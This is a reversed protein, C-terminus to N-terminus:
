SDNRTGNALPWNVAFGNTYRLDIQRPAETREFMLGSWSAVMRQLRQEAADRGLQVQTGNSLTLSWAGRQDLVLRQIDLGIPLLADNFGVWRALVDDLRADPGELWPLGQLQDAGAVEFAAGDTSILRGRNWHAVPRYEHVMVTVTDPWQKRVDVGSVWAINAAAQHLASLDVTFYSSRIQPAL